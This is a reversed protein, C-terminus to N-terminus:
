FFLSYERNGGICFVGPFIIFNAWKFSAGKKKTNKILCYIFSYCTLGGLNKIASCEAKM